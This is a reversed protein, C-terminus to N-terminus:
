VETIRISRAQRDTQGLVIWLNPTKNSKSCLHGLLARQQPPLPRGNGVRLTPQAHTQLWCLSRFIFIFFYFSVGGLFFPLFFLLLPLKPSRTSSKDKVLIRNWAGPSSVDRHVYGRGLVYVHYLYYFYHLVSPPPHAPVSSGTHYGKSRAGM